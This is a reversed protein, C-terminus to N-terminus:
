NSYVIVPTPTITHGIRNLGAPCPLQNCVYHMSIGNVTMRCKPCQDSKPPPYPQPKNFWDGAWPQPNDPTPPTPGKAISRLMESFTPERKTNSEIRTLAEVVPKLLEELKPIILEMIKTYEKKTM